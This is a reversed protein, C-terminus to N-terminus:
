CPIIDPRDFLVLIFSGFPWKLQKFGKLFNDCFLCCTNAINM